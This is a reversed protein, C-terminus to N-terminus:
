QQSGHRSNTIWFNDIPSKYEVVRIKRRLVEVISEDIPADLVLHKLNPIVQIGLGDGIHLGGKAEIKLYRLRPHVHFPHIANKPIGAAKAYLSLKELAPCGEALISMVARYDRGNGLDNFRVKLSRLSQLRAIASVWYVWDVPNTTATPICIDLEQLTSQEQLEIHHSILRFLDRSKDANTWPSFSRLHRLNIIANFLDKHHNTIPKISIRELHPACRIISTALHFLSESESEIELAELREFTVMGEELTRINGRLAGALQIEKLSGCHEILMDALDDSDFREYSDGGFCFSELGPRDNNYVLDYSDKKRGRYALLKLNPRHQHIVPLLKTDPMPKVNLSMLSPLHHLVNVMNEYSVSTSSEYHVNLHTLKPHQRSLLKPSGNVIRTAELFVLNPCGLLIDGLAIPRGQTVTRCSSIRLHTLTSGVSEFANALLQPEGMGKKCDWLDMMM